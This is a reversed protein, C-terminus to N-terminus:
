RLLSLQGAPVHGQFPQFGIRPRQQVQKHMFELHEPAIIIESRGPIDQEHILLAIQRGPPFGEEVPHHIDAIQIIKGQKQAGQDEPDAAEPATRVGRIGTQEQEASRYRQM